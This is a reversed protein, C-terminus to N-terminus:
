PLKEQNNWRVSNEGRWSNWLLLTKDHPQIKARWYILLSQRRSSGWIIHLYKPCYLLWKCHNHWYFRHFIMILKLFNKKKYLSNRSYLFLKALISPPNLFIVRLNLIVLSFPPPLYHKIVARRWLTFPSKEQCFIVAWTLLPHKPFSTVPFVLSLEQYPEPPRTGALSSFCSVSTHTLRCSRKSM